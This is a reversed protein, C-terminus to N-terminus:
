MQTFLLWGDVYNIVGYTNRVFGSLNGNILLQLNWQVKIWRLCQRSCISLNVQWQHQLLYAQLGALVQDFDTFVFYDGILCKNEPIVMNEGYNSHMDQIDIQRSSFLSLFLCGHSSISLCIWEMRPVVFLLWCCLCIHCLLAPSLYPGRVRFVFPSYLPPKTFEVTFNGTHICVLDWRWNGTGQRLLGGQKM